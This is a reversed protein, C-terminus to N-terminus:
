RQDERRIQHSGACPTQGIIHRRLIRARGDGGRPVSVAYVCRCASCTGAVGRAIREDAGRADRERKM